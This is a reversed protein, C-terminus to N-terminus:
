YVQHSKMSFSWLCLVSEAMGGYNGTRKRNLWLTNDDLCEGFCIRGTWKKMLILVVPEWRLLWIAKSYLCLWIYFIGWILYLVWNSHYILATSKFFITTVTGQTDWLVGFYPLGNPSPEARHRKSTGGPKGCTDLDTPSDASAVHPSLKM